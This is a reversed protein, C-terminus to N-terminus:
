KNKRFIAKITESDEIEEVLRDIKVIKSKKKEARELADIFASATKKDKISIEKLFSKTAMYVM